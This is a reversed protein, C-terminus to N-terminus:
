AAREGALRMRRWPRWLATVAAPPESAAGSLLHAALLVVGQAVPAPLGAWDAALGASCTVHVRGADAPARVWGDGSADIDIAFRDAALATVTGDDAVIAAASIAVVPAVALRRWTGDGRVYEVHERVITARGTFAECLSLAAAAHGAILEDEGDGVARLHAKVADRAAAVAGAPFGADM